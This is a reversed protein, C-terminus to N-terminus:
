GLRMQREADVEGRDIMDVAARLKAGLHEDGRMAESFQRLIQLTMRMTRVLDGGQVPVMREVTEFDSGRAWALMAPTLGFEPLKIGNSLGYSAEARRFGNVLKRSRNRVRGLSGADSGEVRRPEYVVAAVLAAAEAPDLDEFVGDWYLEAIQIEYGNIRSALRGKGTLGQANLFGRQELVQLRRRVMRRQEDSVGGAQWTAYSRAVAEYIDEGLVRWLNLVASYSLNFRSKVPDVKGFIVNKVDKQTDEKVDIVSYVEGVDDLGQRGARGAMQFYDLTKLYRFGIGDYKRLSSFVVSRAPMNVGLAFTETAFLLKVLGTTFLREVIEKHIPLMGAHHYLIGQGALRRFEVIGDKETLEYREVLDDFIQFVKRREDKNLLKRRRQSHARGECERRSFCFYLCPHLDEDALHDLVDPRWRGRARAVAARAKGIVKNFASVRDPGHGPIWLHHRLPVPREDTGVVVVEEGRTKAIWDRLDPLNPVTASLGIFRVGKPAFIISEEWVSGRDKDGLYHIEDMIVWAVDSFRSADEFITNRFIETTMILCSAEPNLTLDGTMLGIEDGYTERFDRFKQNSLAKVPSTYVVRRREELAKEIAFEAIVTKGAGTPASVLVSHDREIAALADAQFPYLTFGRFTIDQPNSPKDSM